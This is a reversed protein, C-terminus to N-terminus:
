GAVTALTILPASGHVIPSTPVAVSESCSLTSKSVPASLQLVWPVSAIPRRGIIMDSPGAPARPTAKSSRRGVV